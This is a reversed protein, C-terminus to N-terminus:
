KKKSVTQQNKLKKCHDDMKAYHERSETCMCGLGNKYLQLDDARADCFFSGQDGNLLNDVDEVVQELLKGYLQLLKSIEKQMDAYEQAIHEKLTTASIKKIKKPKVFSEPFISFTLLSVFLCCFFKIKM